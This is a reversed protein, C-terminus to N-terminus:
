WAQALVAVLAIALLVPFAMLVDMRRDQRGPRRLLGIARRDDRRAVVGL